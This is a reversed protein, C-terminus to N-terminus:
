HGNRQLVSSDGIRYGMGGTAHCQSDSVIWILLGENDCILKNISDKARTFDDTQQQLLCTFIIASAMGYGEARFSRPDDGFTPGKGKAIITTGIQIIWGFSARGAIAGGDSAIYIPEQRDLCQEMTDEPVLIEINNVLQRLSEPLQRIRHRLTEPHNPERRHPFPFIQKFSVQFHGNTKVIDVPFSDSPTGM